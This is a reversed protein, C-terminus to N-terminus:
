KLKKILNKVGRYYKEQGRIKFKGTTPWFDATLGNHTVVLHIGGNGTTYSIGNSDLMAASQMKNNLKRERSSVGMEDKFARWDDGVDGM